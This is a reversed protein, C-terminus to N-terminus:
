SEGSANIFKILQKPLSNEETGNSLSELYM